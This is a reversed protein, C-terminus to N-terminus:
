AAVFQTITAVFSLPGGTKNEFRLKGGSAGVNLKSSTALTTSFNTYTQGGTTPVAATSFGFAAFISGNSSAVTCSGGLNTNDFDYTASDALTLSLTRVAARATAATPVQGVSVNSGGGATVQLASANAVSSLQLEGSVPSGVSMGLYYDTATVTGPTTGGINGPAASNFAGTPNSGTVFTTPTTGWTIPDATTCRFIAGGNTSGGRVCVQLGFGVGPDVPLWAGSQVMYVARISAQDKALCLKGATLAVGDVTQLGSLTLSATSAADVLLLGDVPDIRVSM